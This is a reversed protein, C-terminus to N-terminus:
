DQEGTITEIELAAEEHFTDRDVVYNAHMGALNYATMTTEYAAAVFGHILGIALVALDAKRFKRSVPETEDVEFEEDVVGEKTAM